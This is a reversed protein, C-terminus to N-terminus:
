AAPLDFVGRQELAATLVEGQRRLLQEYAVSAADADRAAFADAVAAIGTRQAEIAGPIEAFFNGPDLNAMVRTM